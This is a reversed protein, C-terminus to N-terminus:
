GLGWWPLPLFPMILGLSAALGVEIAWNRQGSAALLAWSSASLAVEKPAHEPLWLSDGGLMGGVVLHDHVVGCLCSPLSGRAAVLLGWGIVCNAAGLAVDFIAVFSALLAGQPDRGRGTMAVVVIPFRAAETHPVGRDGCAVDPTPFPCRCIVELPKKLLNERFWAYGTLCLCLSQPM